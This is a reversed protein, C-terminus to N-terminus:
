LHLVKKALVFHRSYIKLANYCINLKWDSYQLIQIRFDVSSRFHFRLERWGSTPSNNNVASKRSRLLYDIEADKRELIEVLRKNDNMLAAMRPRNQECMSEIPISSHHDSSGATAHHSSSSPYYKAGYSDCSSNWGTKSAGVQDFLTRSAKSVDSVTRLM